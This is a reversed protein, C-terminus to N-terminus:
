PDFGYLWENLLGDSSEINLIEMVRECYGCAQEKEETDASEFDKLMALFQSIVFSKDTGKSLHPQLQRLMANIAKESEV